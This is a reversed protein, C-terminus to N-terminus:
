VGLVMGDIGTMNQTTAAFTPLVGSRGPEGEVVVVGIRRMGFKTTTIFASSKPKTGSQANKTENKAGNWRM